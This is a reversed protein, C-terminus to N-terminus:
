TPEKTNDIILREAAARAEATIDSGALMRAVEERRADATLPTVQTIVNAGANAKAVQLHQQGRAAVQPSHTVVLVQLEDGLRALREGVAAAVAGGVGADVEDFVLTPIPDAAALVVKLALLFRSLEGGSAIKNLPGPPSGPNTAVEFTVADLGNPGWRAAPLEDVRTRFVAREMKLPPLENAVAQDLRGAATQRAASVNRAAAEFAAGAADVAARLEAISDVDQDLAALRRALDAHMAPLDDVESRHKRALDRLAFLRDEIKELAGGEDDFSAAVQDLQSQVEAVEAVARDLGAIAADLDGGAKGAVRDLTRLAAGLGDEAGGEGTIAQAAEQMGRLVDEAHMLRTRASALRTEEGTEPAMRDLEDVAHRLYAEEGRAAELDALAQAHAETATQWAAHLAAMEATARTQGAFADLITLHHAPNLLGHQDFQGQVEVLCDGVRALLSVSTPQDNIFARSRGDAGLTRRLVLAGDGDLGAEAILARAPHDDAIDFVAAVSAQKAERRVLRAEARQGLALGLSDLLISKGAGTEGTLVSLGAQFDLSLEDILVVDRISLSTLM